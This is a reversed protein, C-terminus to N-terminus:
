ALDGPQGATLRGLLTALTAIEAETWPARFVSAAMQELSARADAIAEQGAATLM